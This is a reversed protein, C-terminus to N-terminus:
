ISLAFEWEWKMLGITTGGVTMPYRQRCVDEGGMNLCQNIMVTTFPGYVHYTDACWKYMKDWVTGDPCTMQKENITGSCCQLDSSGQCLGDNSDLGSGCMTNLVCSGATGATSNCKNRVCCQVGNPGPCLGPVSKGTCDDTYLCVGKEGLFWCEEGVGDTPYRKKSTVTTTKGAYLDAEGNRRRTLGALVKGGAKNWMLFAARIGSTGEVAAGSNVRKLLTSSSLAGCGLNFTFSVLASFQNDTITRTVKNRVCDEYAGKELDGRLLDEAAQRSLPASVKYFNGSTSKAQLNSCDFVHCAHGYGITKIGVPDIYFNAYYGEFSKILDVGAQNTNQQGGSPPAAGAVCCRINNAGPCYGAYSTGACTAIDQCTGAGNPTSCSTSEISYSAKTCCQINSAGPCYGATSTGTCDATNLCLGAQGAVTCSVPADRTSNTPTTPSNCKPGIPFGTVPSRQLRLETAPGWGGDEKLL